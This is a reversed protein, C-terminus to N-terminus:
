LCIGLPPDDSEVMQDPNNMVKGRSSRRARGLASITNSVGIICAWCFFAGAAATLRDAGM